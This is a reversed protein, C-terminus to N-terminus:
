DFCHYFKSRLTNKNWIDPENELALKAKTCDLSVRYCSAFYDHWKKVPANRFFYPTYRIWELVFMKKFVLTKTDVEGLESFYKNM